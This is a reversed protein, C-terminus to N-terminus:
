YVVEPINGLVGGTFGAVYAGFDVVVEAARKTEYKIWDDPKEGERDYLVSGM